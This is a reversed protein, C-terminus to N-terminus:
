SQVLRNCPKLVLRLSFSQGQIKNKSCTHPNHGGPQAKVPDPQSEQGSSFSSSGRLFVAIEIKVIAQATIHYKM